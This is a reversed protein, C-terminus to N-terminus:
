NDGVHVYNGGVHVFGLRQYMAGVAEPEFGTTNGINIDEVGMQRAQMVYERVLQAGILGGRKTQPVFLAFDYAALGPGFYHESATGLFGGAIEGDDTEYVIAFGMPDDILHYILHTVKMKDYQFQKYRSELFMQYGLEVMTPVDRYVSNRIM